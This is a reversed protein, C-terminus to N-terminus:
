RRQCCSVISAARARRTLALSAASGTKLRSSDSASIAVEAQDEAEDETELPDAERDDENSVVRESVM